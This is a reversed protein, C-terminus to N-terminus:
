RADHLDKEVNDFLNRLIHVYLVMVEIMKYLRIQVDMMGKRQLPLEVFFWKFNRDNRECM